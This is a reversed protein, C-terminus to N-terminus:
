TSTTSLEQLQKNLEDRQKTLIEIQRDRWALETAIDTKAYLKEHSIAYIHKDYHTQGLYDQKFLEDYRNRPDYLKKYPRTEQERM